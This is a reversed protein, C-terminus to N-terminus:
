FFFEIPSVLVSSYYCIYLLHTCVPTPFLDPLDQPTRCSNLFGFYFFNFLIKMGNKHDGNVELLQVAVDGNAAVGSEPDQSTTNLGEEGIAGCALPPDNITSWTLGGLENRPVPKTFFSVVAMVIGSVGFIIIAVICSSVVHLTLDVARIQKM